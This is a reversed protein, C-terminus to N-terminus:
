IQGHGDLLTDAKTRGLYPATGITDRPRLRTIRMDDITLNPRSANPSTLIKRLLMWEDDDFLGHLYLKELSTPLNDRVDLGPPEVTNDEELGSDSSEVDTMGGTSQLWEFSCQLIRLQQFDRFPVSDLDRDSHSRWRQNSPTNDDTYDTVVLRRLSHGAHLLLGAIIKKPHFTRDDVIAGGFDYTFSQLAAIGALIIKLEDFNLSSCTFYLEKLGRGIRGRQLPEEWYLSPVVGGGMLKGAFTNIAPAHIFYRALDFRCSYETDWHAVSASRLRQFPLMPALTSDTSADAWHEMFEEFLELQFDTIRITQLNPLHHVLLVVIANADGRLIGAELKFVLESPYLPMLAQVAQKLSMLEKDPIPTQRQHERTHPLNLERVHWAKCPDVLSDRFITWLIPGAGRTEIVAYEARLSTHKSLLSQMCTRLESCTSALALCSDPELHEAISILLAIPLSLFSM